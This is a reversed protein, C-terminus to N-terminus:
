DPRRQIPQFFHICRGLDGGLAALRDFFDRPLLMIASLGAASLAAGFFAAVRLAAAPLDAPLFIRTVSTFLTIPVRGVCRAVTRPRPKRSSLEDTSSVSGGCTRPM